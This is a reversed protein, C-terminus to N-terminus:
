PANAPPPCLAKPLVAVARSGQAGVATLSKAVCPNFGVASFRATFTGAATAVSARTWRRTTTVYIVTVHESRHFGAGSVTLPSNDSLRLTPKAGSAGSAAATAALALLMVAAAKKM